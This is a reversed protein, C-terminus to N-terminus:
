KMLKESNLNHVHVHEGRCIDQTAYGIIEGYKIINSGEQIDELAVKHPARIDDLLYIFEGHVEIVDGKLADELLVAVNDRGDIKLIRKVMIKIESGNDKCGVLHM